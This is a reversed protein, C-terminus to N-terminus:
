IQREDRSERRYREVHHANATFATIPRWSGRQGTPEIPVCLIRDERTPGVMVLPARRGPLNAFFRPAGDFVERIESFSVIHKETIGREELHLELAEDLDLAEVHGHESYVRLLEADPLLYAGLM